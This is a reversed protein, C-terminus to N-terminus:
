RRDNVYTKRQDLEYQLRSLMLEHPDEVKAKVKLFDELSLLELEELEKARQINNVSTLLTMGM